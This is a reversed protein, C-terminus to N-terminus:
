GWVPRFRPRFFPTGVGGHTTSQGGKPIVFAASPYYVRPHPAVTTGTTVFVRGKYDFVDRILPLYLVLSQPRIMRPSMAKALAAVEGDTLAVNWLGVEALM